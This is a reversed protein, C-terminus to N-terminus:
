VSRLAGYGLGAGIGEGNVAGASRKRGNQFYGYSCRHGKRKEGVVEGAPFVEDGADAERLLEGSLADRGEDHM